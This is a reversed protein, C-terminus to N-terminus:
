HTGLVWPIAYFGAFIGWPLGCLMATLTGVPGGNLNQVIVVTSSPGIGVCVILILAILIAKM